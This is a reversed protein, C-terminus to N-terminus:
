HKAGRPWGIIDTSVNAVAQLICRQKAGRWRASYAGLKAQSMEPASGRSRKDLLQSHGQISSRLVSYPGETTGADMGKGKIPRKDGQRKRLTRAM